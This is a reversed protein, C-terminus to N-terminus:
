RHQYLNSFHQMERYTYAKKEMNIKKQQQNFILIVSCVDKIFNCIYHTSSMLVSTSTRVRATRKWPEMCVYICRVCQCQCVQQLQLANWGYPLLLVGSIRQLARLPSSSSSSRHGGRVCDLRRPARVSRCPLPLPSCACTRSYLTSAATDLRSVLATQIMERPQRSLEAVPTPDGTGRGLRSLGERALLFFRLRTGPSQDEM